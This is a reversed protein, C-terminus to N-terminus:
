RLGAKISCVPWADWGQMAQLKQGRMIQEERSADSPLGSGGVARWSSLTFQLGGYFGNGTNIAWNGGSECAAIRDWASGNAVAPAHVPNYSSRQQAVPTPAAVPAPAVSAPAAVPASHQVVPAAAVPSAAISKANAPVARHTLQEDDKPVRFKQGPFILDPNKINKNADYLRTATTSHTKALKVLYDGHKVVITKAPEETVVKASTATSKVATEKSALVISTKKATENNKYIHALSPSTPVSSAAMFSMVPVGLIAAATPAVLRM